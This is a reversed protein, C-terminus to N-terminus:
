HLPLRNYDISHLQQHPQEEDVHKSELVTEQIIRMYYDKQTQGICATAAMMEEEGLNPSWRPTESSHHHGLVRLNLHALNAFARDFIWGDGDGNGCDCDYGLGRHLGPDFDPLRGRVGSSYFGLDYYSCFDSGNELGFGCDWLYWFQYYLPTGGLNGDIMVGHATTHRILFHALCLYCSHEPNEGYDERTAGKM